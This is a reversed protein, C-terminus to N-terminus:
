SLALFSASPESGFDSVARHSNLLIAEIADTSCNGRTIWVVKPPHGDVVSRIHFDSDKSVITFGNARAYQWVESDAAMHLGVNRVHISDPYLDSLRRPLKPSLNQDFLLRM